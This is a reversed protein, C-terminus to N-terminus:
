GQIGGAAVLADAFAQTAERVDKERRVAGVVGIRQGLQGGWGVSVTYKKGGIMLFVSQGRTMKAAKVEVTTAPAQVLVQGDTGLLTLVGDSITVAGHQALPVLGGLGGGIQVEEGRYEDSM